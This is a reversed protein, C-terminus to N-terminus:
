WGGSAGGGGFGGGGGSFGGFGGGGGGFGGGFGGGGPRGGWGGGIGPGWLIVPAIGGRRRYRRGGAGRRIMPIAIVVIVIVWFIAAGWNGGGGRGRAQQQQAIQQQARKEAAELPLKMQEGIAQAGALIGGAMDGDRFRPLIVDDVIMGSLADTMIPELGYGVEIRVQREKPAVLLIIGNDADKQGIKWARGLRYGYDEIPYGQLDPVTAVVFQRSSAQEIAQSLQTLQAEQQPALLNAADVVRGTLKPFTQAQAVGAAFLLALFLALRRLM